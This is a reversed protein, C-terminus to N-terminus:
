GPFAPLPGEPPLEGLGPMPALATLWLLALVFLIVAVVERVAVRPRAQGTWIPHTRDQRMTTRAGVQIVRITM